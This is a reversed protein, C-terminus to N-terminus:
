GWFAQYLKGDESFTYPMVGQERCSCKQDLALVVSWAKPQFWLSGNAMLANAKQESKESLFEELRMSHLGFAGHTTYVM